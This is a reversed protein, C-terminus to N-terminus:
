PAVRPKVKSQARAERHAIYFTACIVIISGIITAQDPVEDFIFYAGIGVFILRTYTIPALVSADALTFARIDAFQRLFGIAIIAVILVYSLPQSPAQVGTWVLPLSIVTTVIAASFLGSLPGDARSVNRSLTLAMAFALSSLTGTVFGFSFSAAFPNTIILAGVFGVFIAAWRRPGIQEGHMYINFIAAFIPTTFFLATATALPINALTYFGMHTAIGIMGGRAIHLWPRSFQLRARLPSFLIVAAILLTSTISFRYFVILTSDIDQSLQRVILNMSSATLVSVCIWYLGRLNDIPEFNTFPIKPSSAM